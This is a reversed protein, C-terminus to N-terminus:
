EELFELMDEPALRAPDEDAKELDFWRADGSSWGVEHFPLPRWQHFPGGYQGTIVDTRHPITPFSGCYAHDFVWSEALLRDFNPTEITDSVGHARIYDYRLTDICISVINL